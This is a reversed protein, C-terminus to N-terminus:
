SGKRAIYLGRGILGEPDYQVDVGAATFAETMEDVTFLGMEHHEVVHQTGEPTGILHHLNFISVRGDVFSTNIRAIKLEPDDIYIGHVTNAQWAEPEFWPEVILVGGPVLHSVMQAIAQRLDEITTMYGISSFLCTLIDYRDDLVFSRMDGVHFTVEPLREHAIDILEPCLDLGEIEFHSRLYELHLGTGCAVDLLRRGETRLEREVIAEIKRAEEAYDKFAYIRDYYRAMEAYM